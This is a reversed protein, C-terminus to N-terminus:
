RLARRIRMSLPTGGGAGDRPHNVGDYVTVEEVEFPDVGELCGINFSCQDPNSRRQHHTYIGCISCFFHKATNTNFQYVRLREAGSTIRLGGIPATAVIAGRRRCM